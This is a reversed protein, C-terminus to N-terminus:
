YFVYEEIFKTIREYYRKSNISSIEDSNHLLSKFKTESVKKLNYSQFIDIIGIKIVETTLDDQKNELCQTPIGLILSYDIINYKYLFEFDQILQSLLNKNELKIKIQSEIFNIDKLVKNVIPFSPIQTKRDLLSGKLDFIISNERNPILNEMVIFEINDPKLTFLGFIKVLKSGSDQTVRQFYGPLIKLFTKKDKKTLVKIIFKQDPTTFLFANSKGGELNELEKLKGISKRTLFSDGALETETLVFNTERIKMFFKPMHEILLLDPDYVLYLKRKELDEINLDKFANSFQEESFYFDNHTLYDEHELDKAYFRL